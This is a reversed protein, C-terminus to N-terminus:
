SAIFSAIEGVRIRDVKSLSNLSLYTGEEGEESERQDLSCNRRIDPSGDKRSSSLSLRMVVRVIVAEKPRVKTFLKLSVRVM